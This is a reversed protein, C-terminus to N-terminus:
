ETQSSAIFFSMSFFYVGGERRIGTIPLDVNRVLPNKVLEDKFGLIDNESFASGTLTSPSTGYPLTMREISINHRAIAALFVDLAPTKPVIGAEASGMVSVLANFDRAEQELSSLESPSSPLHAVQAKLARSINGVFISAGLFVVLLIGLTAPILILWFETFTIIQTRRFEEQADIGLLSIEKDKRRTVLGRLGAGLATFWESGISPPVRLTFSRVPIDFNNKIVNTVEEQMGTASVLIEKLSEKWHSNYFNLVRHISSVVAVRFAELSIQTADGRLDKWSTFYNFHLHGHRVVIINIGSENVMALIVPNERDFGDGSDRLARVISLSGPEVIVPVFLADRLAYALEDAIKRELFASLVELQINDKANKSDLVQWGSYTEEEKVPSSMRLNLKIAKDLNAGEIIPLNFVQTYIRVSSLTVIVHIRKRGKAKKPGMLQARLLRLAALFEEKQVVKGETLVGPALRVGAMEWGSGNWLAFRLASDSVELSGMVSRTEFLVIWRRM